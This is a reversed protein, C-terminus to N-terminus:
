EESTVRLVEELSTLGLTFKKVADDWLTVMGNNKIAYNKIEDSPIRKVIMERIQDDIMLVELLGMRGRYGTNLCASCGRGRYFVTGKEPKLGIKDLMERPVEYPEKCAPCIKRCLRQACAMILSSAVLFPEVGMDILRAIAGSADNTHLTSFLLQGTLSAKVAIDATESDRIEGVMIVDPNQRLLARLGNAFTLGIDPQVHIQTIGDIEYEVPDEVTIINREPTNLQNVISYLTTSKGSGTPGTVLLMGYPRSIAEKFLATTEPFFGLGDLGIALNAKDLLRLVVKQGYTTPLVSVRFDIEKNAIRIKFRGDQPLRWETIDLRSMIKLRVLIANQNKKPFRYVDHLAGDVRYRVRMGDQEPELHIDSARQKVAEKIALNVVQVIPAKRSEDVLSTGIELKEDADDIVKITDDEGIEKVMDSMTKLVDKTYYKKIANEIDSDTSMVIDVEYGTINKIDDLAFINLPDATALTLTRGIQSIPILHYQRAIREPVMTLIQPDIKYRSLDIPPINLEKALLILLEKETVWGKQVLVKDLGINKEKQIRIAEDVQDKTLNRSNILIEIIKEKLTKM